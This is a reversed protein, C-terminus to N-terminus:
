PDDKEMNRRTERSSDTGEVASRTKSRGQLEERRMKDRLGVGLLPRLLPKQVRRTKGKLDGYVLVSRMGLQIGPRVYKHFCTKTVGFEHKGAQLMSGSQNSAQRLEQGQLHMSYTAGFRRYVEELSSPTVDRCISTRLEMNLENYDLGANCETKV